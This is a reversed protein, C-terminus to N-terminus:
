GAFLDNLGETMTPHTYISDRLVTYPIGQDIALKLLNIIEYSEECFLHAGLIKGTKEDVVAKLLGAPKRLVQAKPIAAAPLKFIKVQYGKDLAEKETMGVRSFPPDLFVSYPVAGRNETSRAGDGLVQSKVIRFDDLSIYTFQLGGVIDGMAWINDATTKLGADVKVAGRETLEVGAAEPNLDETNPRRGTAVLIADSYIEETDPEAGEEGAIEVTMSIASTLDGECATVTGEDNLEGIVACSSFLFDDQFKPWCSVAVADYGNEKVFQEYAITFHANLNMMKKATPHLFGGGLRAEKEARAEADKDPVALAAKKLEDYEHLRSIKMGDFLRILNREDDYLDDFGPAIGGVLAVSSHEMKKIAKLTRVTIRFRELFLPDDATGFFWKFSKHYDKLYHGIIASYMHIGCLSNFPMAGDEAGEPIAWLGLRADKTRAFVPALFGASFSTTQLLVFDVKEEELVKRAAYGDEANIVTKKYVYLEFDWEEALKRVKRASRRFASEKDGPFSLQSSGVLGVKFTMKEM